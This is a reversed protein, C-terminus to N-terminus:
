KANTNKRENIEAQKYTTANGLVCFTCEKGTYDCVPLKNDEVRQYKCM